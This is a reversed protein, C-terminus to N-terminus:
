DELQISDLREIHIFPWYTLLVILWQPKDTSLTIIVNRGIKEIGVLALYIGETVFGMKSNSINIGVLRNLYFGKRRRFNPIEGIEMRESFIRM